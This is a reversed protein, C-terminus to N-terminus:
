IIIETDGLEEDSPLEIQAPDVYNSDILPLGLKERRRLELFGERQAWDRLMFDPQYALIFGGFMLVLTVSFFFAAHMLDHEEAETKGGFGYTYFYKKVKPKSDSETEETTTPCVTTSERNKKSTSILRICQNSPSFIFKRVSSLSYIRSLAAM